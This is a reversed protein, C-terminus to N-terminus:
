GLGGQLGLPNFIEGSCNQCISEIQILLPNKQFYVFIELWVLWFVNNFIIGKLVVLPLKKMFFSTFFFNWKKKECKVNTCFDTSLIPSTKQWSSTKM